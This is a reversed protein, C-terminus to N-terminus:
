VQSTNFGTRLVYGVCGNDPPRSAGEKGSGGTSKPPPDHQVIRTGGSVMHIRSHVSLDLITDKDVGDLPEQSAYYKLSFVQLYSGFLSNVTLSQSVSLFM